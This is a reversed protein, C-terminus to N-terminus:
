FRAALTNVLRACEALIDIDAALTAVLLSPLQIHVAVINKVIGAQVNV